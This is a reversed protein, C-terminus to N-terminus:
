RPLDASQVSKLQNFPATDTDLVVTTNDQAIKRLAELERTLRYFEPAQAHAQAYLRAAEAEARGRVEEAYKQAEALLATKEAEARARIEEAERQGEARYRAAYQGREARMRELVYGTNAEPLAIRRVGVAEIAIGFAVLAQPRILDALDQEFRPLKVKAADPNVLDTFDLRGLLTNRASTALSDLRAPVAEVSGLAQLFKLPDTVRWALYLPVIVNRKDRTLAESIRTDHFALRTDFRHVSDVPWPWRGYLGPTALIRVPSGFRTLVVTENSAVLFTGLGLGLATLIAVAVLARFLIQLRSM